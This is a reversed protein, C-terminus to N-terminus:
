INLHDWLDALTIEALGIVEDSAGYYIRLLDGELLAGCTFIVNGYFGYLEYETEPQLLPTKSKAIVKMPDNLDLLIAGLCYRQTEDVGHYINLWGKETKIVPAGGGIKLCDWKDSSSGLFHEHDGWYILNDSKALWMEPMGIYRQAPRHIALYKGNVKEPFLCVDRNDPEFIIGKREVKIFDETVALATTIGLPSVASYNIYYKNGFKTVRPDEIGFAEYKTNPFLFPKADITFNVGDTSRALRMHSISTLYIQYPNNKSAITRSDSFDYKPDNKDLEKIVLNFKGNVEELHPIKVIDDATDKPSEAVRLILIIENKYKTVAANFVCDVKLDSRSPTVDAPTILPNKGCRKIAM